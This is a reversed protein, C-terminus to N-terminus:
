QRAKEDALMLRECEDLLHRENEPTAELVWDFDIEPCPSGCKGISTKVQPNYSGLCIGDDRTYYTTVLLTKGILRSARGNKVWLAVPNRDSECECIEVTFNARDSEYHRRRGDAGHTSVLKMTM